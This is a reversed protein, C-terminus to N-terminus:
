NFFQGQATYSWNSFYAPTTGNGGNSTAYVGVFVGTFSRGGFIANDVYALTKMHSRANVPGASMSYHTFNFARIELHLKEHLWTEPLPVRYEPPRQVPSIGGVRFHLQSDTHSVRVGMDVHLKRTWLARLINWEISFTFLTHEQRRGLFTQGGPPASAGDYTLNAASPNLKLTYPRGRPSIEYNSARPFRWHTFHRPLASGSAFDVDDDAGIWPGDGRVHSTAPRPWGEMTNEIPSLIPWQGKEWRVPTLVSERGMPYHEHSSGVRTALAVAWRLGLSVFVNAITQFFNTTNVATLVPNAPNAEYPGKLRPSHAMTVMHGEASGGKAIVLYYMKDKYYIHPGEPAIGGTGSWITEWPATRGSRLDIKAIKIALEKRWYYSAVMYAQGDRDWFPSPDYGEFDFHVALSWTEERYPNETHFIINDWRSTDDRPYDAHVLTTALWFTGDKYRLTPAYIGGTTSNLLGLGPLQEERNLANGILKWNQLDKSAHIPLGPFAGFSSTACFFTDDWEPVFICSPDPQFGPLIPNRIASYKQQHGHAIALPTLLILLVALGPVEM